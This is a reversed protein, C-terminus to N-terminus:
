GAAGVRRLIRFHAAHGEVGKGDSPVPTEARFFDEHIETVLGPDVAHRDVGHPVNVRGNARSIPEADGGVRRPSFLDGKDWGFREGGVAAETDARIGVRQVNRGPDSQVPDFHVDGAEVRGRRRQGLAVVASPHRQEVTFGGSSPRGAALHLEELGDITFKMQVGRFIDPHHGVCLCRIKFSLKFHHQWHLGFALAVM